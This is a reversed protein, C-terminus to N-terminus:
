VEVARVPERGGIWPSVVRAAVALGTVMAGAAVFCGRPSIDVLLPLLLIGLMSGLRTATHEVAMLRLREPPPFLGLRTRLTVTALPAVLGTALSMMELASVRGALGMCATALGDAAWAGCCVALWGGPRWNGALPNGILAGIGVSATVLGYVGAGADFRTALLVPIGVTTAASCFPVLGHVAMALAVQPHSRLLPWARVPPVACPLQCGSVPARRGALLLLSLASVAFAAADLAFLQIKSFWILLLGAGAKGAIRAIRGTLDFLGTVQQIRAPEALEAVLAELNPDFLAGLTGLLLVGALLVALGRGDPTWVFPLAAVLVARVLDLGALARYSLFRAVARRGVAGLVVYPASEAVAVLGMLSASGTAAYVSWIVAVAYFHDGLVSLSRALWLVLVRRRRLLRLYEM